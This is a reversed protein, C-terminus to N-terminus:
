GRQSVCYEGRFGRESIMAYSHNHESTHKADTRNNKNERGFVGGVISEEKREKSNVHKNV